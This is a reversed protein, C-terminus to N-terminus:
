LLTKMKLQWDLQTGLLLMALYYSLLMRFILKVLKMLKLMTATKFNLDFEVQREITSYAQVKLKCTLNSMCAIDLINFENNDFNPAGFIIENVHSFYESLKKSLPVLNKRIEDCYSADLKLLQVAANKM